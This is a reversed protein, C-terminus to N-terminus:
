GSLPGVLWSEHHTQDFINWDKASFDQDSTEFLLWSLFEAVREPRILMGKEQYDRFTQVSPDDGERAADQMPGIVVGPMASGVVIEGNPFDANWAQYSMLLAAKSISYPGGYLMARHASGSSLQLVRAVNEMCPLLLQTLFLPAEVNIAMINRFAQLSLDKLYGKTAIAASHTLTKVLFQGQVHQLVSERGSETGLDTSVIRIHEPYESQLAELEPLRRAIALVTLGRQALHKCLALGVGSSAGTVLHIDKL